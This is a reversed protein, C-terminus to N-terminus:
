GNKNIESNKFSIIKKYLRAADTLNNTMKPNDINKFFYELQKKFISDREVNFSQESILKEKKFKKITSNILDASITMKEFDIEITRQNQHSLFNIHLNAPGLKSNILIDAYDEANITLNSRKSFQGKLKTIGELLFDTYDIEHSLDLIIGGGMQKNSRYSKKHDTGQRWNPLYSAATIRMHLFKNTKFYKKLSIIVPHFRLNYGIYTVLKENKIVSLLEDLGTLSSGIPKDIFLKAGLHACKLATKIHLSTPNTIFVVDPNIKKIQQWNNLETIGLNNPSKNIGSRFAFLEHQYNEKLLRAHRQGISGLGFFVIKM